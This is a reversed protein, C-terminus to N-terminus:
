TREDLNQRCDHLKKHAVPLAADAPQFSIIFLKGPVMFRQAFSSVSATRDVIVSLAHAVVWPVAIRALPAHMAKEGMVKEALCSVRM